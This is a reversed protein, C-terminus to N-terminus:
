PSYRWRIRRHRSVPPLHCRYRGGREPLAEGNLKVTATGPLWSPAPEAEEAEILDALVDLLELASRRREHRDDRPDGPRYGRGPLRAPGRWGLRWHPTATPPNRHSNTPRSRSPSRCRTGAFEVTGGFREDNKVWATVDEAAAKFVNEGDYDYDGIHLIVLHRRAATIRKAADVKETLSNFGGGSRVSIGYDAAIGDILPLTGASEVRLEIPVLKGMVPAGSTRALDAVRDVLGPMGTFGLPTSVLAGGDYIAHLSIIGARGSRDRDPGPCPPRVRESLAPYGRASRPAPHDPRVPALLRRLRQAGGLRRRSRDDVIRQLQPRAAPRPARQHARDNGAARSGSRACVRVGLRRLAEPAPEGVENVLLGAIYGVTYVNPTLSLRKPRRGHM